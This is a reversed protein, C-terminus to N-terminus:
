LRLVHFLFDNWVDVPGPLCWHVCDNYLTVNEHARHGYRSPHGDPRLLMAQTTDMMRFELGRKLGETKAKEFEEVQARYLKFEMEEMKTENGRFPKTRVCNGGNNWEGNEFHSPSLTRLMVMGKFNPLRNIAKLATRFAVRHSYHLTLDTVNPVQCFHCGVLKKNEYFMSPRSFWNGDSIIIYDLDDIKTSWAEDPEDLYLTWLTTQDNPDESKVLFPSWFISITFNCSSYLMRKFNEDTANSIDKPYEVKSLLCMLSQMQNRALSDGVFALSKGRVVELFQTPDFHVLECGNPRWKWKLFGMDPRGYKICNQHEQITWCTMNTYYPADSDQVWEGRSIDCERDIELISSSTNSDSIIRSSSPYPLLLFSKNSCFFIFTLPLLLTASLLLLKPITQLNTLWGFPLQKTHLKM